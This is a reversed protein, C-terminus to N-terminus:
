ELQKLSTYTKEPYFPLIHRTTKPPYVKNKKVIEIVDNKTISKRLFIYDVENKLLDELAESLEGYYVLTFMNELNLQSLINSVIRQEDVGGPISYCEKRGIIVFAYKGIDKESINEISYDCKDVVLKKSLETIVPKISGIIAPYWTKLKVNDSFYDIIVCPIKRYGMKMLAAWRHHGDVILYKDLGPIEAVIIPMDVANDKRFQEILNNLRGEVIEEHPVLKDIDILVPEVYVYPINLKPLKVIVRGTSNM